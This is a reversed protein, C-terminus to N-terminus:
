IRIKYVPIEISNHVISNTYIYEYYNGGTIVQSDYLEM